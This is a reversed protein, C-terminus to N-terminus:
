LDGFITSSTFESLRGISKERHSLPGWINKTILGPVIEPTISTLKHASNSSYDGGFILLSLDIKHQSRYCVSPGIFEPSKGSWTNGHSCGSKRDDIKHMPLLWNTVFLSAHHDYHISLYEIM